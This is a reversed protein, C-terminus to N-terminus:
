MTHQGGTIGYVEATTYSSENSALLVYASALEVPQGARKLPTNQGFKPLKGEPQAETVQLPTWIPGPAISNVRIGKGALQKGLARSFTIIAAKTASYDLLDPSPRYAQISGTTVISSGAPLHPVAARIIWFLSLINTTFTRLLDETKIKEIDDVSIQYGAVLALVDLGGLKERAEEVMKRCFDEDQVDGPILVAKRGAKEIYRAVEEADSQEEPLYSIAVDAGERAFAIAAARGIGSDGGTVLAKRGTLREHGEYSEEGCDPRPHLKSQLGPSPQPQEEYGGTYYAELPNQLGENMKKKM